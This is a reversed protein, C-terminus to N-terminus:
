EGQPGRRAHRPPKGKIAVLTMGLATMILPMSVVGMTRATVRSGTRGQNTLIGHHPTWMEIKATYGSQVGSLRDVQECTLRLELRREKILRVLRAYDKIDFRTPKRPV